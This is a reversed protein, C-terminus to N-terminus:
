KSNHNLVVGDNNSSSTTKNNVNDKIEELQHKTMQLMNVLNTNCLQHLDEKLSIYNQTNQDIMKKLYENEQTIIKCKTELINVNNEQEKVYDNLKLVLLIGENINHQNLLPLIFTFIQEVICLM